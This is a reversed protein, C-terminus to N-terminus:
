TTKQCLSLGIVSSPFIVALIIADGYDYTTSTAGGYISWDLDANSQLESLSPGNSHSSSNDDSYFYSDGAAFSHWQGDTQEPTVGVLPDHWPAHNHYNLDLTIPIRGSGKGWISIGTIQDLTFGAPLSRVGGSGIRITGDGEWSSNGSTSTNYNGSFGSVESSRITDAGVKTVSLLAIVVLAAYTRNNM